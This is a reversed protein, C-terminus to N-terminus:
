VRNRSVVTTPTDVLYSRPKKSPRIVTGTCDMDTIYVAAGSPLHKLQQAKDLNDFNKKQKSRYWAEKEKFLEQNPLQPILHRPIIPITSKIKRGMLLEAPSYGSALPTSRYALLAKTPDHEKKAINKM